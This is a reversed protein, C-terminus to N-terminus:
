KGDKEANFLEWTREDLKWEEPNCELREFEEKLVRDREAMIQNAQMQLIQLSLNANQLKLKTLENIPKREM